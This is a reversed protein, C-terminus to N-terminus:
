KEYDVITMNERVRQPTGVRRYGMSEYLHCNGPEEAITDLAWHEPGHLREVAEIAQRAYGRRRYPELIYLPSIVKRRKPDRRNVVRIAGVARAGLLIYYYYTHLQALKGRVDDLSEAAPSIATDWYKKLLPAFAEIQMRHLAEADNLLARKLRIAPTEGAM